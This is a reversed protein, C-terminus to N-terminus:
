SLKQILEEICDLLEEETMTYSSEKWKHRLEALLKAFLPGKPVGKEILQHGTVPFKPPVYDQFRKLVDRYNLYKLLECIREKTKPEKGATDCLLDQCHRFKDPNFEDDRYKVIFLGLRLEERSM